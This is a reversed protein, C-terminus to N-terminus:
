FDSKERIGVVRPFGCLVRTEMNGWRRRRRPVIFALAASGSSDRPKVSERASGIFGISRSATGVLAQAPISRCSGSCDTAAADIVEWVNNGMGDCMLAM